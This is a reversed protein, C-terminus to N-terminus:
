PKPFPPPTNFYLNMLETVNLIREWNIMGAKWTFSNITILNDGIMKKLEDEQVPGVQKDNVIFFYPVSNVVPINPPVNITNFNNGISGMSSGIVNGIGLGIGASAFSGSLGSENEAAKDLVDFSRDMQYVDRGLIKLKAALDKAEKLKIVSADNEPINISVFYFNILEIGYHLFTQNIKDQAFLSLEELLSNIELVSIHDKILKNSIIATLSSLLKGKFYDNIRESTFSDMNGVLSEFFLKPDSIKIGYQGFARIPVIIGYKPDELQIPATTGWKLDLRSILNVFWVEAQFPSESGFPLNIIKNLVPINDTSLTHTGPSFKDLIKGGKVFFAVQSVSVILQSGIKLDESPFKHIFEELNSEYKVINVIPM